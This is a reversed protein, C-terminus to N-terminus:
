RNLIREGKQRKASKDKREYPLNSEADENM